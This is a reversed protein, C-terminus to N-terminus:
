YFRTFGPLYAPDLQTRRVSKACVACYEDKQYQTTWWMTCGTDNCHCKDAATDHGAAGSKDLTSQEELGMPGDNGNPVMGIKHGAEHVVIAKMEAPQFKVDRWGRTGIVIVNQNNFSWGGQFGEAVNVSALLDGTDGAPFNVTNVTIKGYGAIIDGDDIEIPGAGLHPYFQVSNKWGLASPSKDINKWLQGSTGGKEVPLVIPPDGRKVNEKSLIWSTPGTVLADAWVVAFCYPDMREQYKDKAAAFLADCDSQANGFYWTHAVKGKSAIKLLQIERQDKKLAQELFGYDALAGVTDMDIVQYYLRRRTEVEGLDRESGKGDKVKVKFKDGGAAPLLVKFFVVGMGGVKAKTEQQAQLPSENASYQANGGDPTLTLTAECGASKQDFEAVLWIHRGMSTLDAVGDGVFRTRTYDSLKSPLNVWHLRAM